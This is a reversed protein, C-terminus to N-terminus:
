VIVVVVGIKYVGEFIEWCRYGLLWGFKFKRVVTRIKFMANEHFILECQMLPKGALLNLSLSFLNKKIKNMNKFNDFEIETKIKAKM